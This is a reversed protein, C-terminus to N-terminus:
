WNWPYPDRDRNEARRDRRRDRGKQDGPPVGGREGIRASAEAGQDARIQEVERMDLPEAGGDSRDAPRSCEVADEEGADNGHQDRAEGLPSLRLARADPRM